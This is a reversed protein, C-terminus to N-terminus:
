SIRTLNQPECYTKKFSIKCTFYFFFYNLIEYCLKANIRSEWFNEWLRDPYEQVIHRM